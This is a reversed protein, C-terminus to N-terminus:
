IGTNKAIKWYNCNVFPVSSPNTIPSFNSCLDGKVCKVNNCIKTIYNRKTHKTM